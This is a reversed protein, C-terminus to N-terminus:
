VIREEGGRGYQNQHFTRSDWLVLEGAKVHLVRKKEEIKKLFGEDIKQWNKKHSLENRRMYEEHMKHSGEYVVITREKNETLSM